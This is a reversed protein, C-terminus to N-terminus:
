CSPPPRSLVQSGLHRHYLPEEYHHFIKRDSLRSGIWKLHQKESSVVDHYVEYFETHSCIQLSQQSQTILIENARIERSDEIETDFACVGFYIMYAAAIILHPLHSAFIGFQFM